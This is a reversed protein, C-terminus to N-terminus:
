LGRGVEQTKRLRRWSPVWSVFKRQAGIEATVWPVEVDRCLVLLCELRLQQSKEGLVIGWCYSGLHRDGGSCKRKCKWDQLGVILGHHRESMKRSLHSGRTREEAMTKRARLEMKGSRRHSGNTTATGYDGFWSDKCVDAKKLWM